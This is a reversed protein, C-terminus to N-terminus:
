CSVEIRVTQVGAEVGVLIVHPSPKAPIVSIDGSREKYAKKVGRPSEVGRMRLEELLDHESTHSKHMNEWILNGNEVLLSSHGKFLNGLRHSNLTVRTIVWHVAVLVLTATITGSISANGTIGRALISGLIFGLLVDLPTARSILRSKGFRVIILGAVYVVLARMAIQTVLLKQDPYDGGFLDHLIQM